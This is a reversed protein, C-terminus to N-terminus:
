AVRYAYYIVNIKDSFDKNGPLYPEPDSVFVKKCINDTEICNLEEQFEPDDAMDTRHSFIVMGGPKIIRAFERLVDPVNEVYTLVGICILGAFENDKYRFPREHMNIVHVDEYVNKEKAVKAFDPALDFGVISEFGGAKLAEGTLGSGCGADCIPGDIGGYKLLLRTAYEPAEYNWSRVSDDYTKAWNNYYDTVEEDNQSGAKFWGGSVHAQEQM